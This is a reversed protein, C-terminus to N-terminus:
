HKVRGIVKIFGLINWLNQHITYLSLRVHFPLTICYKITGAILKITQKISEKPGLYQYFGKSLWMASKRIGTWTKLHKIGPFYIVMNLFGKKEIHRTLDYDEYSTIPAPNWDRVVDTKIITNNTMIREKPGIFKFRWKPILAREWKEGLGHPVAYGQISGVRKLSKIFGYMVPILDGPFVIDSDIFFFFETKVKSILEKRARTLPKVNSLHVEKIIKSERITKLLQSNINTKFPICASVESM